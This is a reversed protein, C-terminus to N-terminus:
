SVAPLTDFIRSRNESKKAREEVVHLKEITWHSCFQLVNWSVTLM